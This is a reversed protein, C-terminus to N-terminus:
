KNVLLLCGSILLLIYTITMFVKLSMKKHLLSGLFMGGLLFPLSILLVEPLPLQGAASGSWLGNRIDDVLIISNLVCWVTSITARSSVKDHIRRALYGVLIPGGSVFIGHVLGAVVLLLAETIRNSPLRMRDPFFEAYLGELALLLVFVGLAIYLARQHAALLPELFIGCVIGAAMVLVIKGVEKWEVARRHEVFVYVGALLGLVNLVPKATGYGVLMLSPPMALITGAFGTIGQIINSLFVVAFFLAYNM